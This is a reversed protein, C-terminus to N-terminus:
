ITYIMKKVKLVNIQGESYHTFVLLFNLCQQEIKISYSKDKSDLVQIIFSLM